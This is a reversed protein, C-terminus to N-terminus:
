DPSDGVYLKPDPSGHQLTMHYEMHTGRWRKIANMDDKTEHDNAHEFVWQQLFQNSLKNNEVQNAVPVLVTAIYGVFSAIVSLPFIVM